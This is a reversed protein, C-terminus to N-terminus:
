QLVKSYIIAQANRYSRYANEFAEDVSRGWSFLGHEYHTIVIGHKELESGKSRIFQIAADAVQNMVYLVEPRAHIGTPVRLDPAETSYREKEIRDNIYICPVEGILKSQLSFPPIIMKQSAFAITFPDHWHICGMLHDSAKYGGLHIVTNVPALRNNTSKVSQYLLDGNIDYLLLDEPTIKNRRFGTGSKDVLIASSDPIRASISFGTSDSLGLQWSERAIDCVTRAIEQVTDSYFLEEYSM